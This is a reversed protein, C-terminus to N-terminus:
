ACQAAEAVQREVTGQRYGALYDQSGWQSIKRGAIADLKGRKYDTM